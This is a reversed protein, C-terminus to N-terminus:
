CGVCEQKSKGSQVQDNSKSYNAHKGGLVYKFVRGAKFRIMAQVATLM